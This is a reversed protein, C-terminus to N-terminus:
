NQTKGEEKMKLNLELLLSRTKRPPESTLSDTQLAPSGPKIGPIRHLLSHSGVGTSKSSFGMSRPVQCAVTGPTVFLRVHSLSYCKKKM